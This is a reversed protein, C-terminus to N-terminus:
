FVMFARKWSQIRHVLIRLRRVRVRPLEQQRHHLDQQVEDRVGVVAVLLHDVEVVRDLHPLLEVEGDGVLGLGDVAEELVALHRELVLDLCTLALSKLTCLDAFRHFKSSTLQDYRLPCIMDLWYHTM